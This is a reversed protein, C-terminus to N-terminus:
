TTACRMKGGPELHQVDDGVLLGVLPEAVQDGALPPALGPEIFTKGGIDGINARVMHVGAHVAPVPPPHGLPHGAGPHVHLLGLSHHGVILVGLLM